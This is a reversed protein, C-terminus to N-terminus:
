TKNDTCTRKNGIVTEQASSSSTRQKRKSGINVPSESKRESRREVTEWVEPHIDNENVVNGDVESRSADVSSNSTQKAKEENSDGESSSEEEILETYSGDSLDIIEEESSDEDSSELGTASQFLKAQDAEHTKAISTREPKPPPVNNKTRRPPLPPPTDNDELVPSEFDKFLHPFLHHFGTLIAVNAFRYQEATQILGCRCKRLSLLLSRPNVNTPTDDREAIALASDVLCFTGSRGIGASCHIVPPNNINYLVDKKKIDELFQLFTEPDQPVGFDPWAVYHFQLVKRREGTKKYHVILERIIYADEMQTSRNEIEFEGFESIEDEGMPWYPHCKVMNKEVIRNLMIIAPSHNEWIMRWFDKCTSQLPGQALIYRRKVGPSEVFNANIYDNDSTELKVRTDDYPLVDRYRNLSRNQPARAAKQTKDEIMQRTDLHLMQFVPNWRMSRDYERIEDLLFM